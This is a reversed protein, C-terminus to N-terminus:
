RLSYTAFEAPFDTSNVGRDPAGAADDPAAALPEDSAWAAYGDPRVLLATRREGAWHAVRVRAGACTAGAPLVLVFEGARLAEYLRSGDRLRLDPVRTGVLRHAGRPAPYRVGLGTIQGVARDRAPRVRALLATLGARAAL